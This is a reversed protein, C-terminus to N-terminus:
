FYSVTAQNMSIKGVNRFKHKTNVLHRTEAHKFNACVLQHTSKGLTGILEKVTQQVVHATVM